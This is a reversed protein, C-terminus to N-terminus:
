PAASGATSSIRLQARRYPRPGRLRQLRPAVQSYDLDPHDGVGLCTLQEMDNYGGHIRDDVSRNPQNRLFAASGHGPQGTLPVASAIDAGTRLRPDRGDHPARHPPPP